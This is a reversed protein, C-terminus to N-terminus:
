VWVLSRPKNDLLMTRFTGGWNVPNNFSDIQNSSGAYMESLM